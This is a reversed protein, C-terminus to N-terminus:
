FLLEPLHGGEWPCEGERSKRECGDVGERLL